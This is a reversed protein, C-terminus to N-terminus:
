VLTDIVWGATQLTKYREGDPLVCEALRRGALAGALRKLYLRGVTRTTCIPLDDSRIHQDLVGRDALLGSGIAIPYHIHGVDVQLVQVPHIIRVKLPERPRGASSRISRRRWWRCGGDM